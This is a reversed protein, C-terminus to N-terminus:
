DISWYSSLRNSVPTQGFFHSMTCISSQVVAAAIITSEIKTLLDHNFYVLELIKIALDSVWDHQLNDAVLFKISELSAMVMGYLDDEQFSVDM